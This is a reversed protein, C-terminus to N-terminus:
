PIICFSSSDTHIRGNEGRCREGKRGGAHTLEQASLKRASAQRSAVCAWGWGWGRSGRTKRRQACSAEERNAARGAARGRSARSRERRAAPAGQEAGERSAPPLEWGLLERGRSDLRGGQARGAGARPAGEWSAGL